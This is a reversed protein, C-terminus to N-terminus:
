AFPYKYSLIYQWNPIQPNGIIKEVKELYMFYMLPTIKDDEEATLTVNSLSAIPNTKTM